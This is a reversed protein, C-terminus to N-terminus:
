SSLKLVNLTSKMEKYFHKFWSNIKDRDLWNLGQKIINFAEVKGLQIWKYKTQILLNRKLISFVLEIPAFQPSYTPLYIINMKNNIMTKKSNKSRHSSWNDLIISADKKGFMNNEILWKNLYTIFLSFIDSDVTGQLVLWYWQRTSLIAMIISISGSFNNNQVECSEGRRSWSYNLRTKNSIIWEDINILLTDNNILKSFRIWFLLRWFKLKELWINLPRLNIRKFSLNLKEKMLKRVKGSSINISDETKLKFQIDKSTFVWKKENIYSKIIKEINKNAEEELNHMANVDKTKNLDIRSDAKISYLTSKSIPYTQWLESISTKDQDMKSRLFYKEHM